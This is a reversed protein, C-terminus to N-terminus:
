IRLRALFEDVSSHRAQYYSDDRDAFELARVRNMNAVLFLITFLLRLEEDKKREVNKERQKMELFIRKRLQGEIELENMQRLRAIHRAVSKILSTNSPDSEILFALHALEEEIDKLYNM